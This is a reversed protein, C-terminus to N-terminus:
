VEIKEMIFFANGRKADRDLRDLLRTLRPRMWAYWKREYISRGDIRRLPYNLAKLVFKLRNWILDHARHVYRFHVCPFLPTELFQVRDRDYRRVHGNRLTEERTCLRGGPSLVVLRGGPTLLRYCEAIALMDSRVHELVHSMMITEYSGDEFPTSEISIGDAIDMADSRESIRNMGPGVELVRGVLHPLFLNRTAASGVDMVYSLADDGAFYTKYDTV